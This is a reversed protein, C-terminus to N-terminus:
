ETSPEEQEPKDMGIARLYEGHAEVEKAMKLILKKEVPRVKTFDNLLSVAKKLIEGGHSQSIGASEPAGSGVSIMSKLQAIKQELEEIRSDKELLLQRLEETKSEFASITVYDSADLVRKQKVGPLADVPIPPIIRLERHRKGMVWKYNLRGQRCYRQITRHSVSLKEAAEAVTLYDESM